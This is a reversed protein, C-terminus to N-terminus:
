RLWRDYIVPEPDCALATGSLEGTASLDAYAQASKKVSAVAGAPGHFVVPAALAGPMVAQTQESPFHDPRHSEFM